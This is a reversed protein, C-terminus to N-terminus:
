DLRAGDVDGSRDRDALNFVTVLVAALKERGGLMRATWAFIPYLAVAIIVSWIVISIFPQILTLALYLLLGLVGLRIALEFYTASAAGRKHSSM